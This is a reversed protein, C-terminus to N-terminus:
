MYMELNNPTVHVENPPSNYEELYNEKIKSIIRETLRIVDDEPFDEIGQVYDIFTSKGLDLRLMHKHQNKDRLAVLAFASQPRIEATLASLEGVNEEGLEMGITM